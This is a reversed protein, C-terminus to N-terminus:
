TMNFYGHPVSQLLKLSNWITNSSMDMNIPEDSYGEIPGIEQQTVDVRQYNLM